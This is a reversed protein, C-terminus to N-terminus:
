PREREIDHVVANALTADFLRVALFTLNTDGDQDLIAAGRIPQANALFFSHTGLGQAHPPTTFEAVGKRPRTMLDTKYPGFVYDSAPTLKESMVGLVFARAEPFARAAIRAVAFRGSTGGLSVSLEIGEGDIGPWKGSFYRKLDIPKPTVFLISGNSGYLGVCSWGRPGLVGLDDSKYYALTAPTGDPVTKVGGAPAPQPGQQGDSPCGAMAIDRAQAPAAFAGSLMLAILAARRLETSM